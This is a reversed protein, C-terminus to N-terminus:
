IIQTCYMFCFSFYLLCICYKRLDINDKAKKFIDLSTITVENETLKNNWVDICRNSSLNRRCELRSYNVNLKM